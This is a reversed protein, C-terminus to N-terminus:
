LKLPNRFRTAAIGIGVVAAMIAMVGLPFEPTVTVTSSATGSYTTDYPQSTGTGEIVVMLNYSGTNSFTVSQTDTGEMLHVGTKHAIMAGTEDVVHFQYNLHEIPTRTTPDVFKLDFTVTQPPDVHVMNDMIMGNDITVEVEVSGNDTPLVLADSPPPPPAGGVVVKGIMHPHVQCVYPFEGQETFTFSWEKEPAILFQGPVITSDFKNGAITISGWTAPDKPDTAGTVTHGAGDKNIWTVTTGVSVTITSPDWCKDEAECGATQAGPLIIVNKTEAVANDSNIVAVFPILLLGLMMFKLNKMAIVIYPSVSLLKGSNM